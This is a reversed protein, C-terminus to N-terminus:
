NADKQLREAICTMNPPVGANLHSLMANNDLHVHVPLRGSQVSSRTPSCVYHVYHRNLELGNKVLYNINPTKVEGNDNHYQVNGWGLDDALIFLINPANDSAFLPAASNCVYFLIAAFLSLTAM